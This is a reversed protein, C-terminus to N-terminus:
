YLHLSILSLAGSMVVQSTTCVELLTVVGAPAGGSKALQLPTNGDKSEAHVGAPFAAVLLEMVEVSAKTIAGVHMALANHNNVAKGLGPEAALLAAVLHRSGGRWAAYHLVTWGNGSKGKAAGPDRGVRELVVRETDQSIPSGGDYVVEWLPKTDAM